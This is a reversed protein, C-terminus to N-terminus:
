SRFTARLGFNYEGPNAREKRWTLYFRGREEGQDVEGDLPARHSFEAHTVKRPFIIKIEYLDAAKELGTFGQDEGRERLSNWMGEWEHNLVVTRVENRIPPMFFMAGVLSRKDSEDLPLIKVETNPDTRTTIRLDAMSNRAEGDATVGYTIRKVFVPDSGARIRYKISVADKGSGHIDYTVSLEEYVYDPNHGQIVEYLGRMFSNLRDERANIAREYRLNKIASLGAFILLM